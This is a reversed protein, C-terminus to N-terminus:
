TITYVKKSCGVATDVDEQGSIVIVPTGPIEKQIRKLVEIGNMDPLRYDLTILDPRRDINRFFEKGSSFVEVENEPDVSMQYHLTKAYIENDEVIFITMYLAIFVGFSLVPFM